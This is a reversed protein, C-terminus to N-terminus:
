KCQGKLFKIEPFVNGTQSSQTEVPTVGFPAFIFNEPIKPSAQPM